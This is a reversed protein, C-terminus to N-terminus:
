KQKKNWNFKLKKRKPKNSDSFYLQIEIYGDRAMREIEKNQIISVDWITGPNLVSPIQQGIPMPVVFCQKLRRFLCAIRNTYYVFSLNTITTTREGTNIARLTIYKNDDSTPGYIKMNTGAELKLSPGSKKWKYLDWALALSGTIAGFWAAYDSPVLKNM